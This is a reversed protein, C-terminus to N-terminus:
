NVEINVGQQVIKWSLINIKAAVFSADHEEPYKPTEIVQDVNSVPSGYGKISQIDIKYVHNRVVGYYAPKTADAGLHQIDVFYYTMGSKYLLAPEVKALYANTAAIMATNDSIDAMKVYGDASSYKYWVKAQGATSLQFGVKYANEGTLAVCELDDAGISTYVDEGGGNTTHYYLTYALSNAVATKLNSEGAYENGYWSTLELAEYGNGDAKKQMLQGKLIVKTRLNADNTNEGCYTAEGETTSWVISDKIPNSQSEAWYSRYFPSDNWNLGLNDVTWTSNINKILYSNNYDNFLEWGCIKVYVNKDDGAVTNSSTQTSFLGDVAKSTTLVVKAAIREVYINIPAGLADDKSKQINEITIPVADVVKNASNMYVSNSMVYGDTDNGLTALEDRLNEISYAKDQPTWNLVAVIQKPYVDKYTNLVLVANKIDSVNPMAASTANDITISLHNKTSGPATAGTSGGEVNFPDGNEDFFFFYATKVAREADTGMEYSNSDGLIRTDRDASMLNIAIYSEELEGNNIPSNTDFEKESCAAFGFAALAMILSKKM